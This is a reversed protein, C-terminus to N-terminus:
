RTITIKNGSIEYNFYYTQQLIKLIEGINEHTFTATFTYGEVAKDKIDINVNYWRELEKRIDAFSENVIELRGKAWVTEIVASDKASYSLPLLVLKGSKGNVIGPDGVARNVIMKQNPLLPWRHDSGPLVLEVKGRILSTEIIEEEPYAKVNFLTGLVNVDQGQSHVIFPLEANAPVDFLAEGSLHVERNLTAFGELLRLNSGAGLYVRTSDPLVFFRREGRQTVYTLASKNENAGKGHVAMDQQMGGRQVTMGWVLWGVLAAAAVAAAYPLIRRFIGRREAEFSTEDMGDHVERQLMINLGLVIEAAEQMRLALDPRAHAMEEWFLIDEANRGLCYNIFSDNIILEETTYEMPM